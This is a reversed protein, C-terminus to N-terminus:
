FVKIDFRLISLSVDATIAVADGAEYTFNIGSLSIPFCEHLTIRHSPNNKSTLINIFATELKLVKDVYEQLSYPTALGRMWDHIVSWSQLKEDVFFTLNVEDYELKTGPLKRDRLPTPHMATGLNIGPLNFSKLNFNVQPVEPLSFTARNELLKNLATPSTAVM